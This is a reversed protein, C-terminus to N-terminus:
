GQKPGAPLMRVEGRIGDLAAHMMKLEFAVALLATAIARAPEQESLRSVAKKADEFHPNSDPM